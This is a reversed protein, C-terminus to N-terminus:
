RASGAIIFPQRHHLALGTDCFVAPDFGIEASKDQSISIVEEDHTRRRACGTFSTAGSRTDRQVLRSISDESPGRSMGLREMLAWSRRNAPVAYAVIENLGIRGFGGDIAARAAECYCNLPRFLPGAVEYRVRGCLCSGYLIPM